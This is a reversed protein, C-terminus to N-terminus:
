RTRLLRKKNIIIFATATLVLVPILLSSYEPIVGLEDTKVLWIDDGGAGFSDTNMTLLYGGDSTELLAYSIEAGTGGYTMNWEENGSADTKILWADNSGAGFSATFGVIAYGGDVTQIFHTPGDSGTGGYTMNWQMNGSPDLKVFWFDMSGAGFSSTICAIAYGGDSTPELCQGFEVGTGGYTMNWEENGSADTKILWADNSGAGFSSTHGLLAYGGDDTQIVHIGVDNATGGYTQNWQMNGSADTKVLWFDNSGAGFSGTQGFLAYGGDVAQEVHYAYENGTGGYTKNWLMNGSADTKVLWFDQGGAGFSTTYGSMAYGDDSTLCMDGSTETGTGGYTKNWQMNGDADTKILWFDSGGAGFSSTDGLVAYGGDSAQVTEGAATDDEAGGYTMSWMSAARASPCVASLFTCSVLIVIILGAIIKGTEVGIQEKM